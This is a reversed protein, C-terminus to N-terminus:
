HTPIETFSIFLITILHSLSYQHLPFFFVESTLVSVKMIFHPRPWFTERVSFCCTFTRSPAVLVAHKLSLSSHSSSILSPLAMVQTHPQGHLFMIQISTQMKLTISIWQHNFVFSLIILLYSQFNERSVLYFLM